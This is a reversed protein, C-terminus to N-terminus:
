YYHNKKPEVSLNIILEDNPHFLKRHEFFSKEDSVWGAQAPCLGCHKPKPKELNCVHPRFSNVDLRTGLKWDGYINQVWDYETLDPCQNCRTM